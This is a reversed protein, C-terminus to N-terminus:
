SQFQSSALNYRNIDVFGHDYKEYKKKMEREKVEIVFIYGDKDTFKEASARSKSTSM